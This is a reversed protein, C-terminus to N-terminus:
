YRRPSRADRRRLLWGMFSSRRVKLGKSPTCVRLKPQLIRTSRPGNRPSEDNASQGNPWSPQPRRGTLEPPSIWSFAYSAVPGIFYPCEDNIMHIVIAVKAV